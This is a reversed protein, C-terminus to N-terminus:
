WMSWDPVYYPAMGDTGEVSGIGDKPQTLWESRARITAAHGDAMAAAVSRTSWGGHRFATTPNPNKAWKKNSYLMPPDLLANNSPQQNPAGALLTDAFVLLNWPTLLDTTKKWSQSSISGAWGPTKSPSLYYGNYGYTSTVTGSPGQARYTGWAQNPCEFVSGNALSADLYPGLFGKAYEPPATKTGQTGWWFVQQGNGIDATSWYALPMARDQYRSAYLTWGVIMQRQNSLCKITRASERASRLSPALLGILLAVVAIVVLLEILTFGSARGFKHRTARM